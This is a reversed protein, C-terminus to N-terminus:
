IKKDPAAPISVLHKAFARPKEFFKALAIRGKYTALIFATDVNRSVDRLLHRHRELLACDALVHDRIQLPARDCLAVHAHRSSEPYWAVTTIALSDTVLRPRSFQKSM